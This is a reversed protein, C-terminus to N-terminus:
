HPYPAGSNPLQLSGGYQLFSIHMTCSIGRHGYRRSLAYMKTCTRLATNWRPNAPQLIVNHIFISANVIPTPHPHMIPSGVPGDVGHKETHVGLDGTNSLKTRTQM